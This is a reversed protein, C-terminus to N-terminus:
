REKQAKLDINNRNKMEHKQKETKSLQKQIDVLKIKLNEPVNNVCEGSSQFKRYNELNDIYQICIHSMNQFIAGLATKSTVWKGSARPL